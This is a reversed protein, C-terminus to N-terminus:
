GTVTKHATMRTGFRNKRNGSGLNKWFYYPSLPLLM